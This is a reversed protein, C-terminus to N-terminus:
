QARVRTSRIMPMVLYDFPVWDVRTLHRRRMSRKSVTRSLSITSWRDCVDLKFGTISWLSVYWWCGCEDNAGSACSRGVLRSGIREWSIGTRDFIEVWCGLLKILRVDRGKRRKVGCKRWFVSVFVCERGFRSESSLNEANVPGKSSWTSLKSHYQYHIPITWRQVHRDVDLIENALLSIQFSFSPVLLSVKM